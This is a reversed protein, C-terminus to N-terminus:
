VEVWEGGDESAVEEGPCAAESTKIWSVTFPAFDMTGEYLWVVKRKVFGGAMLKHGEFRVTVEGDLVGAEALTNMALSCNNAAMRVVPLPSSRSSIGQLTHLLHVHLHRPRVGPQVYVRRLDKSFEALTDKFLGANLVSIHLAFM